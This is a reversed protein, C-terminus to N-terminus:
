VGVVLYKHLLEQIERRNVEAVPFLFFFYVLYALEFATLLILIQKPKPEHESRHAEIFTSLKVRELLVILWLRPQPNQWQLMVENWFLSEL